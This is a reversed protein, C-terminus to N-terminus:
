KLDGIVRRATGVYGHGEDEAIRRIVARIDEGMAHRCVLANWEALDTYRPDGGKHVAEFITFAKQYDNSLYASHAWQLSDVITLTPSAREFASTAAPYNKAALETYAIALEPAVNMALVTVQYRLHIMPNPWSTRLLPPSITGFCLLCLLMLLIGAALGLWLKRNVSKESTATKTGKDALEAEWSQVQDLYNLNRMGELGDLMIKYQEVAEKMSADEAMKKEFAMRDADSLSGQCYAEIVQIQEPTWNM